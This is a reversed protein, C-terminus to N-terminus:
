SAIAEAKGSKLHGDEQVRKIIMQEKLLFKNINVPNGSLLSRSHRTKKNFDGV